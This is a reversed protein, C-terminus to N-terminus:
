LGSHSLIMRMCARRRDRNQGPPVLTNPTDMAIEGRKEASILISMGTQPRSGPTKVDLEIVESPSAYRDMLTVGESSHFRHWAGQPVVAIM